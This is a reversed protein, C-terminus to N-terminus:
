SELAAYIFSESTLNIVNDPNDAYLGITRLYYGASLETNSILAEVMIATNNTRSVNIIPTNQKIGTLVTLTELEPLTYGTDSTKIRTFRIGGSGSIIKSLLEQGTRTIVLNSFEAM